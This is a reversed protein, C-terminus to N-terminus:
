GGLGAVLNITTALIVSGFIFSLLGQRLATARIVSNQLNTDSVQFTMGLSFALYAFDSYRPPPQQNFDVGGIPPRYYLKAYRLTYVTHVLLWSLGVTAVGIGALLDQRLGHASHAQLLFFGVAALSAVAAGLLIIDSVRDTPDERTAHSATRDANMPWIVWWTWTVLTAAAVDWALAPAYDPSGIVVTLVGAVVGFAVAIWLRTSTGLGLNTMASPVRKDDPM